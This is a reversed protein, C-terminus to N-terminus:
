KLYTKINSITIKENEYDDKPVEVTVLEDWWLRGTMTQLSSDTMLGKPEGTIMAVHLTITEM